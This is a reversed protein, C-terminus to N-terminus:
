KTGKLEDGKAKIADQLFKTQDETIEGGKHSKLVDNWMLKLTEKDSAAEIGDNLMEFMPKDFPEPGPEEPEPEPAKEKKPRIKAKLRETATGQEDGADGGTKMEMVERWTAEGDNIAAWLARLEILEPPSCTGLDHGLYAKLHTPTINLNAFADAIRRKEADPDKSTESRQTERVREMAEDLLWGPVLRLALTRVAKSVLASEKTSIEDDTADVLYITDGWSNTRTGNAVQGKRLKKREVEKRITIDKNYTVNNELDTVTVRIIRKEADDYLAPTEVYINTMAAIAAEAFRISPGEIGNGVPKNYIAVRCFSPRSCDKLLAARTQDIDRPRKVAMIYRSEVAARAHAEVAAVSTEQTPRFGDAAVPLMAKEEVQTTMDDSM